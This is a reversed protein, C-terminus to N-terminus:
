KASQVKLKASRLADARAEASAARPIHRKVGALAVFAVSMTIAIVRFYGAAGGSDLALQGVYPSLVGGIRGFGVATGVGTARISTPYVHAALAYMTTQVANILGGTWALLAFTQFTTQPGIPIVTLLLAGAIAGAAMTLMSIRSGLRMISMAGLIAGVVGGVNFATLGYSATGVDFGANDRLMSPVWNTGMYVTLLCFFFSGFLTLTDRV